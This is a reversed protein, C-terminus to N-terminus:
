AAAFLAAQADGLVQALVPARSIATFLPGTGDTLLEHLMAVGRASVPAPGYLDSAIERLIQANVLIPTRRLPVRYRGAPKRAAYLLQELSGALEERMPRATLQAARAALRASKKEDAGDSLARDLSRSRLRALLRTIRGPSRTNHARRMRLSTLEDTRAVLKDSTLM